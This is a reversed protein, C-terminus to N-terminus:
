KQGSFITLCLVAPASCYGGRSIYKYWGQRRRLQLPPSWIISTNLAVFRTQVIGNLWVTTSMTGTSLKQIFIIHCRLFRPYAASLAREQCIRSYVELTAGYSRDGRSTLKTGTGKLEGGQVLDGRGSAAAEWSDHGSPWCCQWQRSLHIGLSSVKLSTTGGIGLPSVTKLDLCYPMMRGAKNSFKILICKLFGNKVMSSYDFNPKSWRVQFGPIKPWQVQWVTYLQGGLGTKVSKLHNQGGGHVGGGCWEGRWTPGV